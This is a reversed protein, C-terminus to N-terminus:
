ANYTELHSCHHYLPQHFIYKCNNINASFMLIHTRDEHIINFREFLIDKTSLVHSDVTHGVNISSFLFFPLKLKVPKYVITRINRVCLM